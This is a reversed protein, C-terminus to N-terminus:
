QSLQAAPSYHMNKVITIINLVRSRFELKQEFDFTKLIPGLCSFFSLNDSALDARQSTLLNLLCKEFESSEQNTQRPQTIRKKAWTNKSLVQGEPNQSANSSFPM